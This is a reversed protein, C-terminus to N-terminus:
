RIETVTLKGEVRDAVFEIEQGESMSDIMAADARFVMTMAPMDLKALPGHTITVKGAEADVKKITGTTYEVEAQAMQDGVAIPGHMGAEYHGPILCAFEFRGANAFTWIVEGSAGADLRVSNPDDHEMEMEAMAKKHRANGAVTDIVFEHETAGENIVNFRITAGQKIDLSRPEFLMRGDETERMTVEITRTVDAPDGPMGVKMEPAMGSHDHDHEGASFAPAALTFTLATTLLLSKM